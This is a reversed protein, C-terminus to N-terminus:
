RGAGMLYDLVFVLIPIMASVTLETITRWDYPYTRMTEVEKAVLQSYVWPRIVQALDPEKTSCLPELMEDMKAGLDNSLKLKEEFVKDRVKVVGHIFNAIGFGVFTALALGGLFVGLQGGASSTLRVAYPIALSGSYFLVSSSVLFRSICRLGGYKDLHGPDLNLPYDAIKGLIFNTTLLGWFGLSAHIALIAILSCEFYWKSPDAGSEWLRHIVPALLVVGLIPVIILAKNSYFCRISFERYEEWDQEEMALRIRELYRTLGRGAFYVLHPSVAIWLIILLISYDYYDNGEGGLIGYTLVFPLSLVLSYFYRLLRSGTESKRPRSFIRMFSGAPLSMM